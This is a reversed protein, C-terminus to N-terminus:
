LRLSIAVPPSPPLSANPMVRVVLVSCSCTKCRCDRDSFENPVRAGANLDQRDRHRGIDEDSARAQDNPQPCIPDASIPGLCIYFFKVSQIFLHARASQSSLLLNVPTGLFDRDLLCSFECHGWMTSVGGTGKRSSAASRPATRTVEPNASVERVRQSFGVLVIM